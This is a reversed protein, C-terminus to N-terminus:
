DREEKYVNIKIGNSTVHIEGDGTILVNSKINKLSEKLKKSPKHEVNDTTIISTNPKVKALFDAM